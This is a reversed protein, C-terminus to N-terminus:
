SNVNPDMFPDAIIYDSGRSNVPNMKVYANQDIADQLTKTRSGGGSAGVVYYQDICM